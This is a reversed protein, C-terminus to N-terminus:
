TFYHRFEGREPPVEQIAVPMSGFTKMQEKSLPAIAETVAAAVIRDGAHLATREPASDVLLKATFAGTCLITREALLTEGTQTVVGTCNGSSDEFDLSTVEAEIYEVGLEIATEIVKRLADKADAWGSTKNVLVERIGTYDADDFISAYLSRAEEVPHSSLEAKVGLKDFNGLVQKAFGTASIWYIGSEHYFPNWPPDDRWLHRAELAMKTYVIDNYDARVVKNWDWSAAVRTSASFANRDILCIRARPYKRILYLATSAGFVGSGVIIYNIPVM